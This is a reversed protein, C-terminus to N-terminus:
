VIPQSITMLTPALLFTYIILDLRKHHIHRHETVINERHPTTFYALMSEYQAAVNLQCSFKLPSLTRLIKTM